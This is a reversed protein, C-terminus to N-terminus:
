VKHLILTSDIGVGRSDEHPTMGNLNNSPAFLSPDRVPNDGVPLDSARM